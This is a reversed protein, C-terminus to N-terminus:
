SSKHLKVDFCGCGSETQKGQFRRVYLGLATDTWFEPLCTLLSSHCRCSVMYENVELFAMDIANELAVPMSFAPTHVRLLKKLDSLVDSTTSPLLPLHLSPFKIMMESLTKMANQALDRGDLWTAIEAEVSSDDKMTRLTRSGLLHAVRLTSRSSKEWHDVRDLGPVDVEGVRKGRKRINEKCVDLDVELNLILVISALERLALLSASSFSGDVVAYRTGLNRASDLAGRFISEASTGPHKRTEEGVSLSYCDKPFEAALAQGLTSKGAGPPGIICVLITREKENASRTSESHSKLSLREIGTAPDSLPMSEM